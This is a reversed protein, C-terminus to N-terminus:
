DVRRVIAKAEEHEYENELIWISLTMSKYKEGSNKVRWEIILFILLVIKFTSEVIYWLIAHIEEKNLLSREYIM